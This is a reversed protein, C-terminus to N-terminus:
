KLNRSRWGSQRPLDKARKGGMKVLRDIIEAEWTRFYQLVSEHTMKMSDAPPNTRYSTWTRLLVCISAPGYASYCDGAGTKTFLSGKKSGDLIDIGGLGEYSTDDIRSVFDPARIAYACDLATQGYSDKLNIVDKMYPLSLITILIQPHWLVSASLEHLPTHQLYSDAEDARGGAELLLILTSLANRCAYRTATYGFATRVHVNAGRKLLVRAAELSDGHAAHMLPTFGLANKVDVIVDREYRLQEEVMTVLNFFAAIHLSLWLNDGAFRMEVHWRQWRNFLRTKNPGLHRNWHTAIYCWCTSATPDLFPSEETDLRVLYQYLHLWRLTYRESGLFRNITHTIENPANDPLGTLHKWWNMAAYRVFPYKALARRIEILPELSPPLGEDLLEIDSFSLCTICARAVYTVDCTKSPYPHLGGLSASSYGFQIGKSCLYDKASAHVFQIKAGSIEVFSGCADLIDAAGRLLSSQKPSEDADIEIGLAFDLEGLTLPRCAATIWQLIRFARNRRLTNEIQEIQSFLRDYTAELDKPFENQLVKWADEVAFQADLQELQFRAWLFMGEASHNFKKIALRELSPDSLHMAYVHVEVWRVLDQQTIDSTISIEYCNDRMSVSIAHRILYEPRSTLSFSVNQGLASIFQMLKDASSPGLNCEDFGDVVLWILKSSKQIIEKLVDKIMEIPNQSESGQHRHRLALSISQPAQKLIQWLWTRLISELNNKTEDGLKCFFYAVISHQTRLHEVITATCVSKGSGPKGYIWLMPSSRASWSKYEERDFVWQCTGVHRRSLLERFDDEVAAPQLWTTIEDEKGELTANQLRRPVKSEKSIEEYLRKMAHDRGEGYMPLMLVNFLGLLSYAKDEERKTARSIAWAMRDSVTFQSLDGGRLALTPIGTIENLMHELSIKDGLKQDEKSFFQVIPPAILEQLTWGRKFWRSSRFAGEWTLISVAADGNEVSVDSLYVYCTKANQYWRFMSVIAESLEASSEKNITCTDIWVFELGDHHAREACFKVKSFGAKARGSGELLDRYTPEDDDTFWTHSLVAYPPIDDGFCEVLRLNNIDKCCILRM